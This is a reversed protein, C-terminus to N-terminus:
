SLLLHLLRIRELLRFRYYDTIFFFRYCIFCDFRQLSFIFCFCVFLFLLVLFFALFVVFIFFVNRKEFSCQREEGLPFFRAVFKFSCALSCSYVRSLSLHSTVAKLHFALSLLGIVVNCLFCYALNLSISYCCFQVYSICVCCFIFMCIKTTDQNRSVHM